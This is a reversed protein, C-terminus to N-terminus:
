TLRKKIKHAKSDFNLPFFANLLSFREKYGIIHIKINVDLDRGIM